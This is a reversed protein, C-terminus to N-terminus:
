KKNKPNSKKYVIFSDSKKRLDSVVHYEKEPFGFTALYPYQKGDNSVRGHQMTQYVMMLADLDSKDSRNNIIIRGM